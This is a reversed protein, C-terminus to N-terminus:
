SDRGFVSAVRLEANGIEMTDTRAFLTEGPRAKVFFMLTAQGEKHFSDIM